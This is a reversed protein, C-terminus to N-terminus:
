GGECHGRTKWHELSWLSRHQYEGAEVIRYGGSVQGRNKALAKGLRTQLARDTGDGLKLDIPDEEETMPVVLRFLERVGVPKDQYKAWWREVFSRWAKGKKDSERYVERQNELFGPVKCVELIGGIVERWDEFGGLQPKTPHDDPLLPKGAGIWKQIFVLVACLIRVRNEEVWKKLKRHRFNSREWPFEARADIRIRIIRRAMQPGLEPNNGTCVWVPRAVGSVMESKGLLRDEYRQSVIISALSSSDLVRELNDIVVVSPGTRLKATLRKRTEDEDQGETMPWPWRGLPPYILIDAMLSAGTGPTPKEILHLPTPGVVMERVFPLLLLAVAHAREADGIFPFDGLLEELILEHALRFDQESPVDPISPIAFGPAPVYVLHLHPNYGPEAHLLGNRDFYPAEVIHHLAPLPLDREALMDRVVAMPPHAPREVIKNGIRRRTYWLACRALFHRIEEPEMKRMTPTETEDVKVQAPAMNARFIQPPNNVRHIAEWAKATAKALDGEAVDLRPLDSDREPAIGLYECLKAAVKEGVIEGVTPRGTTPEGQDMTRKTLPVTKGRVHWEEDGGVRAANMIFRETFSDDFGARLFMGALALSLTNRVHSDPKPWARALMSCAALYGVAKVLDAAAIEAPNQHSDWLYPDGDPHISPPVITQTGTSRVEIIKKGEADTFAKTTPITDIVKIWYHSRPRSQRGHILGTKPMYEQVLGVAENCDLDVDVLGASPEGNLLGINSRTNFHRQLEEAALRLDPWGKITPGKQGLPVPIPAWGRSHYKQAWDLCTM